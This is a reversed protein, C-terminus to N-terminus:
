IYLWKYLKYTYICAPSMCPAKHLRRDWQGMWVRLGIHVMYRHPYQSVRGVSGKTFNYRWVGASKSETEWYLLLSHSFNDPRSFACVTATIVEDSNIGKNSKIDIKIPTATMRMWGSFFAGNLPTFAVFIPDRGCVCVCLVNRDIRM